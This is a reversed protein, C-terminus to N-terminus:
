GVRNILTNLEQAEILVRFQLHVSYNNNHKPVIGVVEATFSKTFISEFNQKKTVFTLEVVTGLMRKYDEPDIRGIAAVGGVSVNLVEARFRKEGMGVVAIEVYVRNNTTYREYRRRSIATQKIEEAVREQQKEARSKIRQLILRYNDPWGETTELTLGRVVAPADCQATSSCYTNNIFGEIGLFDGARLSALKIKDFKTEAYLGITGSDIFYLTDNLDKQKLIVDGPKLYREPMSLYLGSAVDRPLDDYIDKWMKLHSPDIGEYAAKDIFGGIRIIESLAMPNVEMLKNYCDKAHWFDKREVFSYVARDLMDVAADINGQAVLEDVKQMIKNFIDEYM